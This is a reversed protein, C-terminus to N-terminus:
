AVERVGLVEFAKALEQRFAHRRWYRQRIEGAWRAVDAHQGKPAYAVCSAVLLAAHGYHRRRSNGFIGEVRKEAATRMAKIATDADAASVALSSRVARVFAGASPTRLTPRREDDAPATSEWEDRASADFEVTLADGIAGKSLLMALLPFVTHGPHDPDSWGLGPARSLLAAAGAVDGVLPCLLGKQRGAKKPCRALAKKATSRVMAPTDGRAVLWRLLRTPTPAACWATELRAPLDARRLEQAALAAGDLLRGRWHAPGVLKAATEYARLAATWDGQDALAQCWALCAQPRKTTRALRELGSAGDLRFVAERLWREQDSEWEVKSPKFRRLRKVWLPLFAGLEPLAVASVEEMDKIPNLLSSVGQAHELAALVATAREPLPTTTYVSAVYQAVCIQADVGLVEEVLEHQGLDIEAGAIPTLIAEFVARASAHDGAMFAKMAGRLYETADAPDAYGLHSAAEVFSQAQEVLRQSPRCHRRGSTGKTARAVLTDITSARTKEDLAGLMARVAARLEPATMAELAQEIDAGKVSPGRRQRGVPSRMANEIVAEFDEHRSGAYRVRKRHLRAGPRGAPEASAM